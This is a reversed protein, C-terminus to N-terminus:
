RKRGRSKKMTETQLLQSSKDMKPISKIERKIKITKPIEQKNKLFMFKENLNNVLKKFKEKLKSIFKASDAIIGRREAFHYPYDLVSDKLERRNFNKILGESNKYSEKDVFLQCSEKHRSLAVYALNRNWGFGSVYVLSHKITTGQTKHITAAYGHTFHNYSKPNITITRDPEMDLKVALTSDAEVKLITGFYGNKVELQYNNKTFLIRDGESFNMEGTATEIKIGDNIEKTRLRESRILQNLDKVDDNKYTIILLESLEFKNQQRLKQWHIVVDLKAQFPRDSFHICQHADYANLAEKIKGSALDMTAQRQWAQQQRYVHNIESYGTRELVARFSAGAGIPQLQQPDGVLVLKAKSKNVASLIFLMAESDTMGAEDMVVVDKKNLEIHGTKLQHRFSDITKSLIGAEKNLNAAAIGSLAIGQIKYKKKELIHRVAGLTFSKGSGARGVLCSLSSPQTLHEVAYRQEETLKKDTLKEYNEIHKQIFKPNLAKQYRGSLEDAQKQINNELEIMYQTTYRDKGNEDIGLHIVKSNQKLEEMVNQIIAKDKSYTRLMKRIEPESFVSYHREIKKLIEDPRLLNAEVKKSTTPSSYGNHTTPMLDIEQDKYSRHDIRADINNQRLYLNAHEAWQKRWELLLTKKGWDREKIGFGNETLRRTTLMVHVHPNGQDWHISMDAIMGQSVFQEHIFSRGLGIAQEQTLEIPLSFEVERSPQSNLRTEHKEVFNWLIESAKNKNMSQTKHINLLWSPSNDPIFIKSFVVDKKNKFNYTEMLREDYLKSASRYAASRVASQGKSRSIMKVHLHYIAM